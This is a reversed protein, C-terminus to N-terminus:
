TGMNGVIQDLFQIVRRIASAGTTAAVRGRFRAFAAWNNCRRRWLRNTRWDVSGTALARTTTAPTAAIVRIEYGVTVALLASIYYNIRVRLAEIRM